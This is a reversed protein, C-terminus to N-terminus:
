LNIHLNENIIFYVVFFSFILDNSYHGRTLLMYLVISSINIGLYNSSIVKNKWFVYLSILALALHGSFLKDYCHGQILENITFEKLECKKDSPLITLNTTLARIFYVPIFLGIMTKLMEFKGIESPFLFPLFPLLAFIWNLINIEKEGLNLKPLFAYALDFVKHRKNNFERLKYFWEGNKYCTYNLLLIIAILLIIKM